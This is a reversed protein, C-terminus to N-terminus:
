TLKTTARIYKEDEDLFPPSQTLSVKLNKGEFNENLLIKGQESLGRSTSAGLVLESREDTLNKQGM